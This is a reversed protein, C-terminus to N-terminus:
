LPHNTNVYADIMSETLTGFEVDTRELLKITKPGNTTPYILIVSTLVHHSKGNLKQLMLKAHQADKPKELIENDLVVVTDAGITMVDPQIRDWVEKTKGLATQTVYEEPSIGNKDITEPFNSTIVQHDLGLLQILERRRPSGSALIFKKDQLGQITLSTSM